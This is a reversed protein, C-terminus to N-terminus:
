AEIDVLLASSAAPDAVAAAADAVAADVLAPCALVDALLAMGEPTLHSGDNTLAPRLVGDGDDDLLAKDRGGVGAVGLLIRFAPTGPSRGVGPGGLAYLEFLQGLPLRLGALIEMSSSERSVPLYGLM